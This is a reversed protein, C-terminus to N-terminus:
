CKRLMTMNQISVSRTNKRFKYGRKYETKIHFKINM